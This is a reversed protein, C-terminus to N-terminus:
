EPILRQFEALESEELVADVTWRNEFFGVMIEDEAVEPVFPRLLARYALRLPRLGSPVTIATPPTFALADAISIALEARRPNRREDEVAFRELSRAAELWLSPSLNGETVINQVLALADDLTRSQATM